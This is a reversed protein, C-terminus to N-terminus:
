FDESKLEEEAAVICAQVSIFVMEFERAENAKQIKEVDSWGADLKLTFGNSVKKIRIADGDKM